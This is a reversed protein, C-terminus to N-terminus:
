LVFMDIFHHLIALHMEYKDIVSAATESSYRWDTGDREGDDKQLLVWFIGSTRSSRNRSSALCISYWTIIIVLDWVHQLRVRGVRKM